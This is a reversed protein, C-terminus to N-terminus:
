KFYNNLATIIEPNHEINKGYSSVINEKSAFLRIKKYNPNLRKSGIVNKKFVDISNRWRRRDIKIKSPIVIYFCYSNIGIIRISAFEDPLTAPAVAAIRLFDPPIDEISKEVYPIFLQVFVNIRDPRTKGKIIYEIYNSLIGSDFQNNARASNYSVKLLWRTLMDFNYEFIVSEGKNVFKYLFNDYLQCTYADLRSLVGGNCSGCVDNITPEGDFIKGAKRIYRVRKDNYKEKTDINKRNLLSKPFIHERTSVSDNGCYACKKMNVM